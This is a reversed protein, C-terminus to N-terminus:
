KQTFSCLCIKSAEGSLNAASHRNRAPVLCITHGLGKRQRLPNDPGNGFVKLQLLVIFWSVLNHRKIVNDSM